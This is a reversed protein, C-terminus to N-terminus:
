QCVIQNQYQVNVTHYQAWGKFPLIHDYFAQMRIFKPDLLVPQGLEFVHQGIQPYLKVSGENDIFLQATQASWFEDANIRQVLEFLQHSLTDGAAMGKIMRRAGPGELLLVRTTYLPSVPIVRGEKTIYSDNDFLGLIRAVPQSQEIEVTITGDLGQSIDAKHIFPNRQLVKEIHGLQLAEGIGQNKIASLVQGQVLTHTDDEDVFQLWDKQAIEVKIDSSGKTYRKKSTFAILGVFLVAMGVWRWPTAISNQGLRAFPLAPVKM